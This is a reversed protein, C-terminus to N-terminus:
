IGNKEGEIIRNLLPKLEETMRVFGFDDPYYGDTITDNPEEAASLTTGDVSYVNDDVVRMTEYQSRVAYLFGHNEKM